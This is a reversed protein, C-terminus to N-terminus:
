RSLAVRDPDARPTGPPRLRVACQKLNPEASEPDVASLTLENAAANHIPLWVVGPPV